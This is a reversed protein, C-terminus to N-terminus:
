KIYCKVAKWLGVLGAQLIEDANGKANLGMSRFIHYVLPVWKDFLEKQEQSLPTKPASIMTRGFSNRASNNQIKYSNNSISNISNIKM